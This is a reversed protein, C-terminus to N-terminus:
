TASVLDLVTQNVLLPISYQAGAVLRLRASRLCHSRIRM